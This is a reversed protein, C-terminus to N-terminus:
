GRPSQGWADGLFRVQETLQFPGGGEHVNFEWTRIEKPGAYHNYAAFVTSPPCVDDMLGVSFLARARARPGFNMADVYGLTQFVRAVKDRHGRLYRPIEAYPETDVIQTARRYHCLFPVDSLLISIGPHLGAVALAIGGGQSRGYAAIRAPDVAALTGVADVARVADTFLRRYFHWRPDLGGRTMFGPYFPDVAEGGLDPTSGVPGNAGQGRNDMVFHAYGASAWILREVLLGRGGGYGIYEVVCPLPGSRAAPLILWGKIRQGDYGSFTADFTEFTRLGADVPVLELDVPHRRADALTEGWFADFDPPENRDPLYARLEDLPLDFAVV